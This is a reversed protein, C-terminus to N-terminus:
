NHELVIDIRWFFSDSDEENMLMYTNHEVNRIYDEYIEYTFIDEREYIIISYYLPSISVIEQKYSYWSFMRSLTTFDNNDTLSAQLEDNSYIEIKTIDEEYHYLVREEIIFGFDYNLVDVTSIYGLYVASSIQLLYDDFLIRVNGVCGNSYTLGETTYETKDIRFLLTYDDSEDCEEKGSYDDYFVRYGKIPQRYEVAFPYRDLIDENNSAFVCGSLSILLMFLIVKKM